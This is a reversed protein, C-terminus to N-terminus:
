LNSSKTVLYEQVFPSYRSGNDREFHVEARAHTGIVLCLVCLICVFLVLLQKPQASFLLSFYVPESGRVSFVYLLRYLSFIQRKSPYGIVRCSMICFHNPFGISIVFTSFSTQIALWLCTTIFKMRRGARKDSYHM